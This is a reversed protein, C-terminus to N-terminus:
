KNNKPSSSSSANKAKPKAPPSKPAPKKAQPNKNSSKKQPESRNPDAADAQKAKLYDRYDSGVENAKKQLAIQTQQLSNSAAQMKKLAELTDSKAKKYAFDNEIRTPSLKSKMEKLQKQALDLDEKAERSVPDAAIAAQEMAFLSKQDTAITSELAELQSPLMPLKSSPDVGSDLAAEASQLRRLISLYSESAKLQEIALKSKDQLTLSTGRIVQLQAPIGLSEGVREQAQELASDSKKKSQLYNRRATLFANSKNQLDAQLKRLESQTQGLEKRTKDVRQNEQREDQRNKAQTQAWCISCNLYFLTLVFPMWALVWRGSSASYFFM